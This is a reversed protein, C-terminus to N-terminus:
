VKGPSIVCKWSSINGDHWYASGFQNHHDPLKHIKTTDLGTLELVVSRQTKMAWASAALLTTFGRVPAHIAGSIHYKQVKNPTTAHYLQSPKEM